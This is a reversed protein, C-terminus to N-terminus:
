RKKKCKSQDGLTMQVVHRREEVGRVENVFFGMRKYWDLVWGDTDEACWQLHINTVKRAWADGIALKLLQEGLGRKRTSEMVNLNWIMAQSKKHGGYEVMVTGVPVGDLVAIITTHDCEKWETHYHYINLDSM